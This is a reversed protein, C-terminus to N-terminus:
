KQLHMALPRTPAVTENQVTPATDAIQKALFHEFGKPTTGEIAWAMYADDKQADDRPYKMFSTSPKHPRMNSGYIYWSPRSIPAPPKLHLPRAPPDNLLASRKYPDGREKARLDKNLKTDYTKMSVQPRTGM